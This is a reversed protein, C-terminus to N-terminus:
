RLDVKGLSWSVAKLKRGHELAVSAEGFSPPVKNTATQQRQQAARSRTQEKDRFRLRLFNQSVKAELPCKM